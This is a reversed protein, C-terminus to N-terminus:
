RSINKRETWSPEKPYYPSPWPMALSVSPTWGGDTLETHFANAGAWCQALTHRVEGCYGRWLDSCRRARCGPRTILTNPQHRSLDARISDEHKQITAWRHDLVAQLAAVFANAGNTHGFGEKTERTLFGPLWISLRWHSRASDIDRLFLHGVAARKLRNGKDDAFIRARVPKVAGAM